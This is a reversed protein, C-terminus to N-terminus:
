TRVDGLGFYCLRRAQTRGYGLLKTVSSAHGRWERRCARSRWPKTPCASVGVRKKPPSIPLNNLTQVVRGERSHCALRMDKQAPERGAQSTMWGSVSVPSVGISSQAGNKAVDTSFDGRLAVGNLSCSRVDHM